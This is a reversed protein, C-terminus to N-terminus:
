IKAGDALPAGITVVGAGSESSAAAIGSLMLCIGGIFNVQRFLTQLVISAFKVFQNGKSFQLEYAHAM